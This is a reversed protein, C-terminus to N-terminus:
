ELLDLPDYDSDDSLLTVMEVTVDLDIGRSWGTGSQERRKARRATRVAGEDISGGSPPHSGENVVRTEDM